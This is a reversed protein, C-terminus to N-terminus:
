GGYNLATTKLLESFEFIDDVSSIPHRTGKKNDDFTELYKQSRNFHLRAVPKRNNDDLLIGFYSQTDRATIRRVDVVSRIIAKIVNFGEIEEVTTVVLDKEVVDVQSELGSPANANLVQSVIVPQANGTIASKLRDNVQDSLFQVTAKRTLQAFQERVKQTITGEYVRSAFFRVFDEDPQQFQSHLERKIQGVYKLEGAASIISEVDFASKTLKQLEPVVHDDIDLM